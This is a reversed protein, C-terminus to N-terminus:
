GDRRTSLGHRLLAAHLKVALAAVAPGTDASPRRTTCHEILALERDAATRFSRLQRPEVGYAALEGATRAIGVAEADYNRVLGAAELQDLQEATIGAADLLEARSLPPPETDVAALQDRIVKLPLYQDRQSALVFRLREIDAASFKRYGSPTRAPSVLGASELFRIKSLTVDAFEPRLRDLVEGIGFRAEPEAGPETNAGSPSAAPTM